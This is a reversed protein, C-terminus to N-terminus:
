LNTSILCAKILSIIVVVYMQLPSDWYYLVHTFLDHCCTMYSESIMILLQHM